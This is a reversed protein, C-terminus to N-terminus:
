HPDLTIAREGFSGVYSMHSEKSLSISEAEIQGIEEMYAHDDLSIGKARLTEINKIYANSIKLNGEIDFQMKKLNSGEIYVASGGQLKELTMNRIGVRPGLPAFSILFEKMARLSKKIATHTQPRMPPANTDLAFVNNGDAQLLIDWALDVGEPQIFRLDDAVQV